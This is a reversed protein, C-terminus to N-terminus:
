AAPNSDLASAIREAHVGPYLHGDATRCPSGPTVQCAPCVAITIVVDDVRCPHPEDRRHWTGAATGKAHRRRKCQQGPEAQCWTCTVSLLDVAGRQRAAERAGRQPMAAALDAAAQAPIYPRKEDRQPVTRGIGATLAAIPAPPGAAIAHHAPQIQGKAVARRTDALQRRWAAEDDPDAAPIPDTHRDLRNKTQDRWRTAIDAVRITFPSAAYHEGVAKIAYDLPVDALVTAWLAAMGLIEQPDAPLIRNDAYSINKILQPIEDPTM